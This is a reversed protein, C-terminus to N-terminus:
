TQAKLVKDFVLSGGEVRYAGYDTLTTDGNDDISYTGLASERNKTAFFAEIVAGRNNAKEGASKLAELVASMAEFGYIAEAGPERGYAKRFDTFFEQGAPPYLAPDFAPSTLFTSRGAPGIAKAFAPEALSAPGFLKIQPSRSLLARWLEVVQSEMAGGFFVADAGSSAVMAALARVDVREPNIAENAAVAVDQARAKEAVLDAIVKGYLSRDNVFYSRKVGQEKMYTAVAQAQIHDAPVVRAFNREGTPYYKDPEDKGAGDSRTLGVATDGPSVQLIRARNLIPASVASGAPDLEGIYAISTANKSATRANTSSQVPDQRGTKASASDLAVLRVQFDGVKRGSQDLALREAGLVDLARQRPVGQLPLSTYIVLQSGPITAGGRETEGCSAASASAALGLLAALLALCRRGPEFRGRM